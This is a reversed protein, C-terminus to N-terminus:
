WIMQVFGKKRRREGDRGKADVVYFYVGPSALKNNIKGDWAALESDAPIYGTKSFKHVIRGWRNFVQFDLSELSRTLITLVDNVGDGNPTFAPAIKVLSSDIVIYDQLYFTDRCTYGTSQKASVLKVKYRGSNEYTYVPSVEYIKEMISDVKGGVSGEQEIQSKDKFLFWEYKDPDGNESENTFKVELPAEQNTFQPNSEQNAKWSFKAKTVISQYTVQSSQMCGARDTVELRYVSNKTPPNYIIPNQITVVPINDTYWIYKYGHDLIVAQRSSLDYYVYNSGTADGQLKLYQCNSEAIAATPEAWGNMVWARFLRDVGNERFSVRYCGNDLGTLVSSAGTENSFFSFSGSVPNFKEWTFTVQSGSSSAKLSGNQHGSTGCFYYIFDKGSFVPYSTQEAFSASTSVLSQGAVFKVSLLLFLFLFVGRIVIRVQEMLLM